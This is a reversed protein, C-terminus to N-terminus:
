RRALERLASRGVWAQAGRDSRCLREAANIAERRLAPNRKGLARLAMDVGKRVYDREDEAGREILPLCALFKQDEAQEDHVSLSWILAFAARKEFEARAGAWARVKSWAPKARDFLHFCVTDCVAWSDFDRAWADMQAATVAEPEDVFAALLRAEYWGSKWLAQALAHDRGIKKAYAKTAGVTVGFAKTAPIGYRAMGDRTKKTGNRELWALAAALDVTSPPSPIKAKSPM